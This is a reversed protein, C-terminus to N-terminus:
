DEAAAQSAPRERFGETLATVLGRVPVVTDVAQVINIQFAEPSRVGHTGATIHGAM